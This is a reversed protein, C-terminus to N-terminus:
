EKKEIKGNKLIGEIELNKNLIVDEHTKYYEVNNISIVEVELTDDDDNKCETITKKKPRGRGRVVNESEKRSLERSEKRSFKNM